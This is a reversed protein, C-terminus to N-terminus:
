ACKEIIERFTCKRKSVSLSGYMVRSWHPVKRQRFFHPGCFLSRQPLYPKRPKEQTTTDVVPRSLTKKLGSFNDWPDEKPPPRTRKRRGQEPHLAVIQTYHLERPTFSGECRRESEPESPGLPMPRALFDEM